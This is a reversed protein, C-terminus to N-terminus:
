NGACGGPEPAPRPFARRRLHRRHSGKGLYTGPHIRERSQILTGVTVAGATQALEELEELSDRADDGNGTSVAFLIVREEEEKLEILEAM